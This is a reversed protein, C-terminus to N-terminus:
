LRNEAKPFLSSQMKEAQIVDDDSTTYGEPSTVHYNMGTKMAGFLLSPAVNNGDGVYAFTMRFGMIGFARVPKQSRRFRKPHNDPNNGATRFLIGCRFYVSFCKILM